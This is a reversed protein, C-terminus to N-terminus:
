RAWGSLADLAARLEPYAVFRGGRLATAGTLRRPGKTGTILSRSETLGRRTVRCHPYTCSVPTASTCTM